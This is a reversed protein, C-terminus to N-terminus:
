NFQIDAIYTPVIDLRTVGTANIVIQKLMNAEQENRCYVYDSGNWLIKVCNFIPRPPEIVLDSPKFTPNTSEIAM